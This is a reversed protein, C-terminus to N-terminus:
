ILTLGANKWSLIGGRYYLIKEKPYGLKLLEKVVNSAEPSFSSEGFILLKQPNKFFWGRKIKKAGLSKLVEKQYPSDKTLMEYPLNIASPITEEKYKLNKRVDLLLGDRKKEVEQIFVLLELEGVTKVGKIKLPEICFPPCSPALFSSTREITIEHELHHTDVTVLKETINITKHELKIKPAEKSSSEFLSEKGQNLVSSEQCAQNKQEILINCGVDAMLLYTTCAMIIVVKVM